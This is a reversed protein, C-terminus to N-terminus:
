RRWCTQPHMRGSSGTSYHRNSLGTLQDLEALATSAALDAALRTNRRHGVDLAHVLHEAAVVLRAEVDTVKIAASARVHERAV